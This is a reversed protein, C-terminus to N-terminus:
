HSTSVDPSHRVSDSDIRCSNFASISESCEFLCFQLKALKPRGFSSKPRGSTKPALFPNLDGLVLASNLQFQFGIRIRNEPRRSTPGFIKCRSYRNHQCTAPPLHPGGSSNVPAACRPRLFRLPQKTCAPLEPRGSSPKPRGSKSKILDIIQNDVQFTRSLVADPIPPKSGFLTVSSVVTGPLQSNFATIELAKGKGINLEFHM